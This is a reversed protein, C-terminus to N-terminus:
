KTQPSLPQQTSLNPEDTSEGNSAVSNDALSDRLDQVLRSVLLTMSVVFSIFSIGTLILFALFGRTLVVEYMERDPNEPYVQATTIAFLVTLILLWLALIGAFIKNM